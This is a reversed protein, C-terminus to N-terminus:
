SQDWERVSSELELLRERTEEAERLLVEIRADDGALEAAQLNSSLSRQSARLWELEARDLAFTAERRGWRRGARDFESAALIEPAHVDVARAQRLRDSASSAPDAALLTKALREHRPDEWGLAFVRDELGAFAGRDAALLALLEREARVRARQQASLAELPVLPESFAATPEVSGGEASPAREPESEGPRRWPTQRIKRLLEETSTSFADAVLSAYSALALPQQSALPALIQCIGDLIAQREGFSAGVVEALRRELVFLVLDEAHTLREMMAQAGEAAIFEAPDQGNPLVVCLLKAKTAGLLGVMKEAARQGAEDGDLLSVIEKPRYRDLVALHDATLATGLIAVANTVGAEHLAIADTYGEVVVARGTATISSKARDLAYLNKRKHWIASDRSNLYKPLSGDIVRGGFGITQGTADRIPFMVRDYFRDRLRGQRDLALDAALIESRSFGQDQLTRVLDGRGLSFGLGWRVCVDRGLGRASLYDRARQCAGREDRTRLLLQAFRAQAADLCAFLRQRPPGSRASRSEHLEIHARDALYRVADAFELNERKMVYGIVDGKAGCGFCYYLGRDRTIHFSETREEHFPCRGWFDGPGKEHLQVTEAVLGVFDTAEIVREKEEQSIM